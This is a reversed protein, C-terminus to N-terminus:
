RAGKTSCYSGGRCFTKMLYPSFGYLDNSYTQLVVIDPEAFRGREEFYSSEDCITYGCVGGNVVELEPSDRELLQPFCHLNHSGHGYTYSDGVCLIRPKNSKPFALDRDRRLGQSNTVLHYPLPTEKAFVEDRSPPLDGLLAPHNAFSVSSRHGLMPELFQRLRAAVLQNGLRSLHGDDPMLYVQEFRYKALEDTLDLYPLDHERALGAFYERAFKITESGGGPVYMVVLKADAALCLEVFSEFIIGYRECYDRRLDAKEPLSFFDMEDRIADDPRAAEFDQAAARIELRQRANSIARYLRVLALGTPSAKQFFFCRAGVEMLVAAVILPLLAFALKKRLSL